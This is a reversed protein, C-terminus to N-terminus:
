NWIWGTIKYNRFAELPMVPMNQGDYDLTEKGYMQVNMISKSYNVSHDVNNVPDNNCYTYLNLSTLDSGDILIDSSIFCGWEANYFRSGLKYFGSANDYYYGRYRFPNDKGVQGKSNLRGVPYKRIRWLPLLYLCQKLLVLVAPRHINFRFAYRNDSYLYM